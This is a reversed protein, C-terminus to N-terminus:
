PAGSSSATGDNPRHSAAMDSQNRVDTASPPKTRRPPKKPQPSRRRAIATASKDITAGPGIGVGPVAPVPALCDSGGLHALAARTTVNHNVFQRRNRDFAAVGAVLQNEDEVGQLNLQYDNLATLTTNISNAAM